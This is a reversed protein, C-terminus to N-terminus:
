LQLASLIAPVFLKFQSIAARHSNLRVSRKLQLTLRSYYVLVEFMVFGNLM